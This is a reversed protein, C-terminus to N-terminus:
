DKEEKSHKEYEEEFIRYYQKAYRYETIAFEGLEVGLSQKYECWNSNYLGWLAVYCYVLLRTKWDCGEPFYSDIVMDAFARDHMRYTIFGALDALPDHMQSYEWDILDIKERGEADTSFLFNDPNCDLHSLVPTRANQEVFPRMAFIHAKTEEYDRYQSEGTEWLGEFYDIVEFLKLETNAKLNLEHARRALRMCKRVEEPDNENCTRANEIFRAIKFGKRADFYINDDCIGHGKLQEYVFGEEARDIFADTGEGPVRMIYRQGKVTFLFSRNTLGKKLVDVNIIEEYPIHLAEKIAEIADNQLEKSYYDIERLQEYTNVEVYDQETVLRASLDFKKKDSVAEEWFSHANKGESTMAALQHSISSAKEGLICAVGVVKNGTEGEPIRIIERMRNVRVDTQETPETSLMYWSYLEYDRFPNNYFYIDCPVIYCNELYDRAVALSYLNNKTTYDNCILLTVGYKDTLYEYREKMFGVVVYIQEIGAQQLQRITHEIIPEGDIELLGKPAKKHIPIMRLGYGAALIIARTMRGGQKMAQSKETPHNDEDIFAEERFMRLSRNIVGISHGTRKMLERQTLECDELLCGLVDMEMTTM